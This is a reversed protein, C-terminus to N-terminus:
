CELETFVNSLVVRERESSADLPVFELKYLSTYLCVCLCICMFVCARARVCVCACACVSVIM